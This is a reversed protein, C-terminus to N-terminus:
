RHSAEAAAGPSVNLIFLRSRRRHTVKIAGRHATTRKGEQWSEKGATVGTGMVAKAHMASM